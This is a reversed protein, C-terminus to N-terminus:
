YDTILQAAPPTISATEVEGEPNEDSKTDTGDGTEDPMTNEPESNDPADPETTGDDQTYESTDEESGKPWPKGHDEINSIKFQVLADRLKQQEVSAVNERIEEDTWNLYRKQLLEKSLEDNNAFSGYNEIMIALVKQKSYMEYALPAVFQVLLDTEDLEYQEWMKTLKLHTTFSKLLGSAFNNQIRMVFKAFRYEDYGISEDKRNVEVAPEEVRNYPIKLGIYLQKKFYKIDDIEGFTVTKGLTDVTTGESGDPKIFFYSELANHADYSNSISGNGNMTSSKRTQFRRMLKFVEQEAKHRPLNGTSVNFLYREPSRALRYVVLMDELMILQNYVKRIKELSPYVMSRIVNYNGTNIYTVQPFPLPISDNQSQGGRANIYLPDYPVNGFSAGTNSQVSFVGLAPFYLLGVNVNSNPLRLFEYADVQLEKVKLIGLEPQANDIINEFAVEGHTMFNRVYSYSNEEFNFLAMFRNFEENLANKMSENLKHDNRVNLKVFRSNEDYNLFADAVDDLADSIDPYNAMQRYVKLRENKKQSLESYVFTSYVQFANAGMSGYLEQLTEADLKVVSTQSMADIKSDDQLNNFTDFSENSKETFASFIRALINKSM